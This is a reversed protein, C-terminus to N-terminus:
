QKTSSWIRDIAERTETAANANVIPYGDKEIESLAVEPIIHNIRQVASAYGRLADAALGAAKTDGLALATTHFLTYAIAAHNFATYDDRLAKTLTDRRVKDIVGAAKGLLESGKEVIPNGGTTGVEQQYAKVRDRNGKVMDHFQQIAQHAVPNDKSLGLQHDLAEEIHSDIAVLDGLWDSLVKKSKENTTVM